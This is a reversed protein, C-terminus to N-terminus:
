SDGIWNWIDQSDNRPRRNSSAKRPKRKKRNERVKREFEDADGYVDVPTGHPAWKFLRSSFSSGLRICGHSLPVRGIQGKHLAVSSGSLRMMFPMSAGGNPKPYLNSRHYRKKETIKFVGTPTRYGPKGSSIKGSFVVNGDEIAYGVQHGIDIEIYKDGFACSLSFSFILSSQLIKTILM